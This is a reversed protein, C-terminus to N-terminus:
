ALATSVQNLFEKSFGYDVYGEASKPTYFTERNYPNLNIGHRVRFPLDPTSIFYRGLIVVVDKDPRAVDVLQQASAANYGGAILVPGDWNQVAFDLHDAKEVDENGAIRSEVLHLYALNFTNLEKIFHSFQPIPNDMRMGNFTSWPSLRIGTREAGIKDVVARVAELGFRSRNVISGGYEDTRENSNTQLFQDIIYGNAGHLEVGDFGAEIANQSARAYDEVATRINTLEMQRPIPSQLSIRLPSPGLIGIGERSTVEDDAARGLSWLQCFIYSGKEHVADTIKRWARIQEKTYIGPVNSYGGARPSIFTGETILLTGPVSARQGYYEVMMDTPVHRDSARFRTLPAMAMRHKLHMNGIVLPKLLRSTAM